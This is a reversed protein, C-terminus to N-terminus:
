QYVSNALYRSRYHQLTPYLSEKGLINLPYMVILGQIDKLKKVSEPKEIKWSNVKDVIDSFRQIRDSPIYPFVEEYIKTNSKATEIMLNFTKDCIPDQLTQMDNVPYGMLENFLFMRLTHAFRAAIFDKGNM